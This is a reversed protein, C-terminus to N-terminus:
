DLSNRSEAHVRMHCWHCLWALNSLENNFPNFDQHHCHVRNLSGCKSCTKSPSNKKLLYHASQRTKILAKYMEDNTWRERSKAARIGKTKERFARSKAKGKESDDYAKKLARKIEIPRNRHYENIQERHRDRWDATMCKRSCFKMNRPWHCTFETSCQPCTKTYTNAM